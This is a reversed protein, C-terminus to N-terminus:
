REAPLHEFTKRYPQGLMLEAWEQQTMNRSAVRKAEDGYAAPSLPIVVLDFESRDARRAIRVLWTDAQAFFIARDSRGAAMAFTEASSVYWPRSSDRSSGSTATEGTVPFRAEITAGSGRRALMQEGDGPLQQIALWRQAVTVSVGSPIHILPLRDRQSTVPPLPEYFVEGAGTVVFVGGGDHEFQGWDADRFSAAMIPTEDLHVVGSSTVVWRSAADFVGIRSPYESVQTSALPREGALRWAGVSTLLWRSDPSFVAFDTRMDSRAMEVVRAEGTAGASVSWIVCPGSPGSGLSTFLWAGDSSLQVRRAQENLVLAPNGDARDELLSFM